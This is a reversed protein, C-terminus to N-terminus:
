RRSGIELEWNGLGCGCRNIAAKWISQYGSVQISGGRTSVRVLIWQKHPTLSIILKFNGFRVGFRCMSLEKLGLNRANYWFCILFVWSLIESVNATQLAITLQTRRCGFLWFWVCYPDGSRDIPSYRTNEYKFAGRWIRLTDDKALWNDSEWNEGSGLFFFLYIFVFIYVGGNGNGLWVWVRESSARCVYKTVLCSRRGFRVLCYHALRLSLLHWVQRFVGKSIRIQVLNQDLFSLTVFSVM